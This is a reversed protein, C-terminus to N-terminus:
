GIECSLKAIAFITGNACRDPDISPGCRIKGLLRTVAEHASPPDLGRLYPSTLCDRRWGGVRCSIPYASKAISLRAPFPGNLVLKEGFQRRPGSREGTARGGGAAGERGSCPM